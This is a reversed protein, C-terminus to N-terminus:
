EILTVHGNILHNGQEGTFRYLLRYSYVGIAAKNGNYTGDWGNSIDKSEFIKEGWRNFIQLEFYVLNSGEAKFVDNLGDNDPIFANPLYILSADQVFITKCTTDFCHNVSEVILCLENEQIIAPFTILPENNLSVISQNLMWTSNIADLSQNNTQVSNHMISPNTPDISFAASPDTYVEISNQLFASTACQPSSVTLQVFYNGSETFIHTVTDCDVLTTGDGFNWVCDFPKNSVNSWFSVELPSCGNQHNAFLVISDGTMEVSNVTDGINTCFADTVSLITYTGFENIFHTMSNSPINSLTSNNNSNSLVISWPATGTFNFQLPLSDNVCLDGSTGSLTVTPLPIVNVTQTSSDPCSGNTVYQITYTNGPNFNNLEGTNSDIVTQDTSNVLQFTGGSTGTITVQNTENYCFDAMVFTPDDMNNVQIVVSTTDACQTGVVYQIEYSNGVSTSSLIGTSTNIQAGFSPPLLSFTGNLEGTISVSNIGGDCIDSSVFSADHLIAMITDYQHDLCVTHEIIYNVNPTVNSLIGTSPHIFAGTTDNILTFEGQDGFFQITNSEGFCFNSSSFAANGPNPIIINDTVGLITTCGTSNTISEVTVTNNASSLPIQITHGDMVQYFNLSDNNVIMSIDYPGYCGPINLTLNGSDCDIANQTFTYTLTDIPILSLNDIMIQNGSISIANFAAPCTFISSYQNWALSIDSIYITSLNTTPSTTPFAATNLGGITLYKNPNITRRKIGYFSFEYKQNPCLNLEQGMSWLDTYFKIYNDGSPLPQPPFETFQSNGQNVNDGFYDSCASYFYPEQFNTIENWFNLYEFNFDRLAIETYGPIVTPCNVMDEFGGNLMLNCSNNDYENCNFQSGINVTFQKWTRDQGCNYFYNTDECHYYGEIERGHRVTVDLNFNYNGLALYEVNWCNNNVKTITINNPNNSCHLDITYYAARNIIHDYAGNQGISYTGDGCCVGPCLANAPVSYSFNNYAPLVTEEYICYNFSYQNITGFTEEDIRENLCITQTKYLEDECLFEDYSMDPYPAVQSYAPSIILACFFLLLKTKM